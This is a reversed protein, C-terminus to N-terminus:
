KEADTAAEEPIVKPAKPMHEVKDVAVTEETKEM